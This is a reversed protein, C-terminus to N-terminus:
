MGTWSRGASAGTSTHRGLAATRSNTAGKERDGVGYGGALFCGRASCAICLLWLLLGEAKGEVEMKGRAWGVCDLANREGKKTEATAAADRGGSRVRTKKKSVSLQSNV